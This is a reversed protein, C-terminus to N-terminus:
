NYKHYITLTTWGPKGNGHYNANVMHAKWTDTTVPCASYTKIGTYTMSLSQIHSM